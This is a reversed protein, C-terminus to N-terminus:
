KWRGYYKIHPLTATNYDEAYEKFYNHMEWKPGNFGGLGKVNEMWIEFSRQKQPLDSLKILGYQGFVPQDDDKNNNVTNKRDKDSSSKKRKLSLKEKLKGMMGRLGGKTEEGSEQPSTAEKLQESVKESVKSATEDVKDKVVDAAKTVSTSVADTTTTTKAM